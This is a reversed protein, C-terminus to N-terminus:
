QSKITVGCIPPWFMFGVFIDFLFQERSNDLRLFLHILALYSDIMIVTRARPPTYNSGQISSPLSKQEILDNDITLRPTLVSSTVNDAGSQCIGRGEWPKMRPQGGRGSGRGGEGAEAKVM